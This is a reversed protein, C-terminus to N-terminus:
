TERIVGLSPREGLEAKDVARASRRGRNVNGHDSRSTGLPQARLPGTPRVRVLCNLGGSSVGLLFSCIPQSLLALRGRGDKSASIKSNGGHM